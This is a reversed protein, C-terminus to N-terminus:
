TIPREIETTAVDFNHGLKCRAIRVKVSRVYNDDSQRVETVRGMCWQNRPLLVDSVLVLDGIAFSRQTVTWKQREQLLRLYEKRWRKWFTDALHQIYKWRKRCFGDSDDFIGPPPESSPNLLLLNNPTLPKLDSPDDSLPTLPRNNMISEVECLFTQLLEDNLKRTQESVIAQLITRVTRIEREWIGGFHSAHPSNFKWTIQQQQLWNYLPESNWSDIAGKLKRHGGVLNTGNDSIFNKIAGRRAIFRRLGNIFSDTNLSHAVELHVARTVLCSFVIGYRKENTRGRVVLFPGFYDIGTNHFPFTGFSTRELPLQAMIQQGFRGNIKRCIICNNSIKKVLSNKGVIWYDESLDSLLYNRGMHGIKSHRHRAFVEVVASKSPLLIPHM